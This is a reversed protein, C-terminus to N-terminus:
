NMSCIMEEKNYIIADSKQANEKIIWRELEGSEMLLVYKALDACDPDNLYKQSNNIIHYYLIKDPITYLFELSASQHHYKWVSQKYTPTPCSRRALVMTRVAQGIREVKFLLVLYFDRNAYLRQNKSMAVTQHLDQIIAPEMEKRYEIVDDELTHNAMHETAIRGYSKKNEM